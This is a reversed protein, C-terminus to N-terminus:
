FLPSSGIHLFSCNKKLKKKIKMLIGLIQSHFLPNFNCNVRAEQRGYFIARLANASLREAANGLGGHVARSAPVDDVRVEQGLPRAGGAEEVGAREDVGALM